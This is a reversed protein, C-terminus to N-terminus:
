QENATLITLSAKDGSGRDDVPMGANGDDTSVSTARRLQRRYVLREARRRFRSVAFGYIRLAESQHEDSGDIAASVDALARRIDPSVYVLAAAGAIDYSTLRPDTQPDYQKRMARGRGGGDCCRESRRSRAAYRM